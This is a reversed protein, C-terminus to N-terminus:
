AAEAPPERVPLRLSSRSGAEEELGRGVGVVTPECALLSEHESAGPVDDRVDLLEGSGAVEDRDRDAARRDHDNAVVVSGQAREVVQAPVAPHHHEVAVAACEFLM